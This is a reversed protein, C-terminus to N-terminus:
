TLALVPAEAATTFRVFGLRQYIRAVDDDAATLVVQTQGRGYLIEVVRSTLAAALGRRRYAPLLGVGVVEAGHEGVRASAVGVAGVDNAADVAIVQVYIGKERAARTYAQIEELKDTVLFEAVAADREAVGVDGIDTGPAGFALNGLVRATVISLDDDAVTLERLEFGDPTSAPTFDAPDLSLAPLLTVERGSDSMLETFEPHEDIVWEFDPKMGTEAVAQVIAEVDSAAVHTGAVPRVPNPWPRKALWLGFPGVETRPGDADLLGDFLLALDHATMPMRGM